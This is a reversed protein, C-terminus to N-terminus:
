YGRQAFKAIVADAQDRAGHGAWGVRSTVEFVEARLARLAELMEPASEILSAHDLDQESPPVHAIKRHTNADRIGIGGAAGSPMEYMEWKKAM